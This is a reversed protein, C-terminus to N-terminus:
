EATVEPFNVRVEFTKQHEPLGSPNASLFRLIGTSGSPMTFDISGSFAVYDETMWDDNSTLIADGLKNGHSDFLEVNFQAEFFWSGVAEGEIELPSEIIENTKPSSILIGEDEGPCPAFECNPPLRGLSTGDSCIKADMTCFVQNDQGPLESVNTNKSLIAIFVGLMAFVGFLIAAKKM